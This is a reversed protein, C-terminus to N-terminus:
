RGKEPKEFLATEPTNLLEQLQVSDMSKVHGDAFGMNNRGMHRGPVPLSIMADSANETLASSDYLMGTLEPAKMLAVQRKSLQSSYAYTYIGGTEAQSHNAVSPCAYVAPNKIYPNIKTMWDQAAPYTEDYDQAYMLVGLAMQKENSLCSAERAKERAQAFVPFLIAAMIPIMLLACGCGGLLVIVIVPTKSKPPPAAPPVYPIYPANVPTEM